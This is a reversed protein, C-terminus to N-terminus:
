TVFILQPDDMDAGYAPKVSHVVVSDNRVDLTIEHMTMLYAAVEEHEIEQGLSMIIQSQLGQLSCGQFCERQWYAGVQMNRNYKYSGMLSAVRILIPLRPMSKRDDDMSARMRMRSVVPSTNRCHGCRRDCDGLDIYSPSDGKTCSTRSEPGGTNVNEHSGTVNVTCRKSSAPTSRRRISRIPSVEQSESTALPQLNKRKRANTAISKDCRLCYIMTAASIRDLLGGGGCLEMVIYVNQDDGFVDYFQFTHQSKRAM